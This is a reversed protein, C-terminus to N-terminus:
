KAFSTFSSELSSFPRVYKSNVNRSAHTHSMYRGVRNTVSTCTTVKLSTFMSSSGPLSRQGGRAALDSGRTLVRNCPPVGVRAVHHERAVPPSAPPLEIQDRTRPRRDDEALHLGTATVREPDRGLRHRPRLLHSDPAERHLPQRVVSFPGGAQPEVNGRHHGVTASLPDDVYQFARESEASAGDHWATGAAPTGTGVTKRVTARFSSRTDKASASRTTVARADTP